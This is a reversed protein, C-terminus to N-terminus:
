HFWFQHSTVWITTYWKIQFSRLLYPPLTSKYTPSVIRFSKSVHDSSIIHMSILLGHLLDNGTLVM